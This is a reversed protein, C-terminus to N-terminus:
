PPTRLVIGFVKNEDDNCVSMIEAGTKKHKYLIAKSKCEDIFQESVKEFGLKEAVEDDAGIGELFWVFSGLVVLSFLNRISDWNLFMLTGPSLQPSSTAVARVSLSSFHRRLHFAPSAATSTLRLHNDFLTSRRCRHVSHLLRHRKASISTFRALGNYPRAFIRSCALPTTSSLSRLLVAKEM